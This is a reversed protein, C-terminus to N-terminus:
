KTSPILELWTATSTDFAWLDDPDEIWRVEGGDGAMRVAGGGVLLRENIPDYAVWPDWRNHPGVGLGFAGANEENQWLIRWERATADYAVMAGDDPIVSLGAAEEYAGNLLLWGLEPTTTDEISWGGGRPDFTWTTEIGAGEWRGPGSINDGVYLVIRDAAGNYVMIQTGNGRPPPSVSGQDIQTWVDSDVDYAWMQSTTLSRTVILGSVPDYVAQDGMGTAPLASWTWTDSDADYAAAISRTFGIVRDSDADYVMARADFLDVTARGEDPRNTRTWTNMCVDLTWAGGVGDVVVLRGSQADVAASGIGRGAPRAQDVSGPEDPRTGAPCTAIAPASAALTTALIDTGGAVVTHPIDIAPRQEDPARLATATAGDFEVIGWRTPVWLIGSADVTAGGSGFGVGVNAIATTSWTAGDFRSITGPARAAATGGTDASHTVWVAGDPGVAVGTVPDPALGDAAGYVTWSDGDYRGVGNAPVGDLPDDIAVVWVDGNPAVAVSMVVGTPIGDATTYRRWTAGDFSVVDDRGVAWLTGDPAVALDLGWGIDDGSVGRVDPPVPVVTRRAGDFTVLAGTGVAAHLTGDPGAALGTLQGDLRLDAYGDAQSWTTGDFRVLSVEFSVEEPENVERTTAAWVTDDPSVVIGHASADEPVPVDVGLQFLESTRRELDWRVIGAGTTAWLTGDDVALSGTEDIPASSGIPAANRLEISRDATITPQAPDIAASRLLAMVAFGVVVVALSVATAVLMGRRLSTRPPPALSGVYPASGRVREDVAAAIADWDPAEDWSEMPDLAAYRDFLDTTMLAEM